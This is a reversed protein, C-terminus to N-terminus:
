QGSTTSPDAGAVIRRASAVAKGLEEPSLGNLTTFFSRLQYLAKGGWDDLEFLPSAADVVRRTGDRYVVGVVSLRMLERREAENARSLSKREADTMTADAMDAAAIEDKAVYEFMYVAAAESVSPGFDFRTITKRTPNRRSLDAEFALDESSVSPAEDKKKKV